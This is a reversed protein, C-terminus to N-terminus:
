AHLSRGRWDNRWTNARIRVRGAAAAGADRWEGGHRRGCVCPWVGHRRACTQRGSGSTRAVRRARRCHRRKTRAMRSAWLRSSGTPTRVAVRQVTGSLTVEAGDVPPGGARGVRRDAMGGTSVRGWVRGREIPSPLSLYALLGGAAVLPKTHGCNSAGFRGPQSEYADILYREGVTFQYACSAGDGGILVSPAAEGVVPRGDALRVVVNGGYTAPREVAVVTAEFITKSALVSDCGGSICLCAAALRPTVAVLLTGLLVTRRVAPMVSPMPVNWRTYCRVPTTTVDLPPRSTADGSASSRAGRARGTGMREHPRRAAAPRGPM